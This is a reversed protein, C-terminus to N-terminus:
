YLVSYVFLVFVYLLWLLLVSVVCVGYVFLVSGYVVM